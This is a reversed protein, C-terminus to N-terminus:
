PSKANNGATEESTFQYKDGVVKNMLSAWGSGIAYMMGGSSATGLSYYQTEVTTDGSDDTKTSDQQGCAVLSLALVMALVLALLKKM